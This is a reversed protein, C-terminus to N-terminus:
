APVPVPQGQNGVIADLASNKGLETESLTKAGKVMEPMVAATQAAQEAKLRQDRIALIEEKSRIIKPPAGILDGYEIMAEDADVADLIAPFVKAMNGAFNMTQEIATTGVMKQAQALMSIYEVKWDRGQIELPPQPIVGTRLMIKFSREILPDLLESELRELVPGLMLLKEEHREVIERATMQTKELQAVMMFLDVYFTKDIAQKTDNIIAQISNLDPNIQYAPRVGSNPNIASTRTIGGPLLNSEGQVSGDMQVPPDIVKDLAILKDKQMKMLMKVDGLAEWGPSRGYIHATTTTDWRPALIPFDEYGGIKLATDPDAGLEWQISRFAMNGFDEMELIRDRNPEILHCVKVWADISRQKYQSLVKQSVNDEGFEQILQGITMNYQRGFSNVRGLSDQGLWYEGITFNRARIVTDFDEQIIASATGFGGIEEYISNLVGYINSQSFVAMMKQQVKNLWEKVPGFEMLEQDQLGLKFWPRSPSTLGSTMGSALTRLARSPADDLQTKHDITRGQNPTSDDFFGRTPKIYKQIDKWGPIWSQMEQKMSLWRKEILNRNKIKM